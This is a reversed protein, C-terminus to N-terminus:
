DQEHIIFGRVASLEIVGANVLATLRDRIAAKSLGLMAGLESHTAGVRETREVARIAGLIAEDAVKKPASMAWSMKSASRGLRGVEM